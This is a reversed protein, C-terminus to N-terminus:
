ISLRRRRRIKLLMEVYKDPLSVNKAQVVSDPNCAFCAGVLEKEIVSEPFQDLVYPLKDPTQGYMCTSGTIGSPMMSEFELEQVLASLPPPLAFPLAAAVTTSNARKQKYLTEHSKSRIMAVRIYPGKKIRSHM